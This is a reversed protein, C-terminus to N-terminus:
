AFLREQRQANEIRKCAIEFYEPVIEVGIFRFGRRVAAIGTTGSGMYPDLVLEGLQVKAESLCWDMLGIPKQTPHVRAGNDEGVKVCALGGKWMFNCIRSAKGQSHWAFEVDSFSDFPELDALKNWALWRGYGEPLRHCYHNAGWLLVNKYLLWLSPDFPRDDGVVPVNGRSESAPRGRYAGQGGSAGKVFKIGYPPDSVVAHVEYPLLPIVDLCDAQYLTANGISEVRM